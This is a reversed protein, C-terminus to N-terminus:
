YMNLRPEFLFYSIYELFFTQIKFLINSVIFSFIDAKGYLKNFIVLLLLILDKIKM